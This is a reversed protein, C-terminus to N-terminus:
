ESKSFIGHNTVNKTFEKEDINLKVEKPQVEKELEAVKRELNKVRQELQNM